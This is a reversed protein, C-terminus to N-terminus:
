IERVKKKLDELSETNNDIPNEMEMNDNVPKDNRNKMPLFRKQSSLHVQNKTISM